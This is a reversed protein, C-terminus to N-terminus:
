TRKAEEEIRRIAEEETQRISEAEAQRFFCITRVYRLVSERQKQIINEREPGTISPTLRVMVNNIVRSFEEPIVRNCDDDLRHILVLAAALVDMNMYQLQPLTILEDGWQNRLEVTIDSYFGLSQKLKIIAREAPTREKRTLKKHLTTQEGELITGTKVAFRTPRIGRGRLEATFDFVNAM